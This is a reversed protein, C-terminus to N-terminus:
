AASGITAILVGLVVAAVSALRRRRDWRTDGLLARELATFRADTAKRVLEAASSASESAWDKLKTKTDRLEDELEVVRAELLGVREDITRERGGVVAAMPIAVNIELASGMYVVTDRQQYGESRRFAVVIDVALATVGIAQLAGGIVIWWEWGTM